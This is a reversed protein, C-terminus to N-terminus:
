RYALFSAFNFCQFWTLTRAFGALNLRHHHQELSDPVLVDELAQRKRSIELESYGQHRKFAEHLLMQNQAVISDEFTVKESVLLVGGPNLGCRIARLLPLRQQHPIFQLTFNLIVLSANNIAVDNIDACVLHIPITDPQNTLHNRCHSLMAPSNDVAIIRCNTHQAAGARMALSTAGLSCGLDYMQSDDRAFQEALVSIMELTLEYGPVSRRIMDPFVSAVNDDFSFPQDGQRQRFLTDTSMM